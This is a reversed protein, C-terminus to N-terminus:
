RFKIKEHKLAFYLVAYCTLSIIVAVITLGVAVPIILDFFIIKSFFYKYGLSYQQPFQQILAPINKHFLFGGITASIPILFFSTWWNTSAVGTLAALRNLRFVWAFFLTTLVGEGPAIGMFIGLAAGAAVKHPSDDILFFQKLNKKFKSM